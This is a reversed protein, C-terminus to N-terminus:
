GQKCAQWGQEYADSHKSRDYSGVKADSCGRQWDKGHHGASPKDHQAKCANWGSEYAQSHRSRDYSGVKADSCGRDYDKGAHAAGAPVALLGAAVILGAVARRLSPQSPTHPM